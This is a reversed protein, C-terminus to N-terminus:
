LKLTFSIRWSRFFEADLIQLGPLDGLFGILDIQLNDTPNYGVGYFFRTVSEAQKEYSRTSSYINNSFNVSETGDGRTVIEKLPSSDTVQRADNEVWRLYNFVSGFRLSWKLNRTFKYEIGAAFLFNYLSYEYTHDATLSYSRTQTFDNYTSTDDTVEYTRQNRYSSQYDLDRRWDANSFVMRLGVYVREDFPINVVAATYWQRFTEKGIDDFLNETSIQDNIDVSLTDKGDFYLDQSNFVQNWKNTYNYRAQRWGLNVKWFGDNKREAARDFVHKLSFDVDFGNGNRVRERKVTETETYFDQYDMLDPDFNEERGKYVDETTTGQRENLFGLDLRMELPDALLLRMPRMFSLNLYFFRLTENSVFDGSETLQYDSFERELRIRKYERTFSPDGSVVGMLQGFASGLNYAARTHENKLNGLMFRLGLTNNGMKLSNNWIIQYGKEYDFNIKETIITRRLDYFGDFDTDLLANYINKLSGNGFLDANGDLDRDIEVTGSSRANQYRVLFSSWLQYMFPLQASIGVLFEDDSVGNLIQEQGSTLNSLNTYLRIGKVFSLEIPDYILDLDDYIVGGLAQSRFSVPPTTGMTQANLHISVLLSVIWIGIMRKMDLGGSKEPELCSGVIDAM